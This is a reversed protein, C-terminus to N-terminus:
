LCFWGNREKCLETETYEHSDGNEFHLTVIKGFKKPGESFGAITSKHEVTAEDALQKVLISAKNMNQM